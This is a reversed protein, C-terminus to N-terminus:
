DTQLLYDIRGFLLWSLILYSCSLLIGVVFPICQPDLVRNYCLSYIILYVEFYKLLPTLIPPSLYACNSRDYIFNSIVRDNQCCIRLMHGYTDFENQAIIDAEIFTRMEGVACTAISFVLCLEHRRKYKIYFYM